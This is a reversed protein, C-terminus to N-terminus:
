RRHTTSVSGQVVVKIEDRVIFLEEDAAIRAATDPTSVIAFFLQFAKEDEFHLEAIGDYRFDEQIGLSVTAPWTGNQETPRSIYHRTHTISFREGAISKLLEVHKTDWHTKFEDPSLSPKRTIFLLVIFAM